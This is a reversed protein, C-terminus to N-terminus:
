GGFVASAGGFKSQATSVKADGNVTVTKPTPSTDTFTTSNNAGDMHLMLSVFRRYADGTTDRPVVSNIMAGTDRRYARVIRSAPNGLADTVTGVVRPGRDPFAVTPVTYGDSYRAIGKTVRLDDIYGNFYEVAATAFNRGIVAVNDTFSVSSAIGSGITTLTLKAGDLYIEIVGAKRQLVVHHFSGDTLVTQAATQYGNSNWGYFVELRPSGSVLRVDFALGFPASASQRQTSFIGHGSSVSPRIFAEITFDGTTFAFADNAALSLYDSSGNLLLSAGGFKSQVTSVKADGNVTIIKPLKSNDLFQTSNNAGDCHLLLSVNDFYQDYAM